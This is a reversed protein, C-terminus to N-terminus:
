DNESEEDDDDDDEDDESEVNPHNPAVGRLYEQYDENTEFELPIVMQEQCDQCEYRQGVMFGMYPYVRIGHCNICVRFSM